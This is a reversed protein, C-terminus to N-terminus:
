PWFLNEMNSLSLHSYPLILKSYPVPQQPVPYTHLKAKSVVPNNAGGYPLGASSVSKVAWLHHANWVSEGPVLSRLALMQVARLLHWVCVAVMMTWGDPSGWKQGWTFSNTGGKLILAVM